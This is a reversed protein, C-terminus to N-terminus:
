SARSASSWPFGAEKDRMLIHRRCRPAQTAHLRCPTPVLVTGCCAEALASCCAHISAAQTGWEQRMEGLVLVRFDHVEWLPGRGAAHPDPAGALWPSHPRGM